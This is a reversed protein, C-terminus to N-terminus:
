FRASPRMGSSHRPAYGESIKFIQDVVPHSSPWRALLRNGVWISVLGCLLSPIPLLLACWSGNSFELYQTVVCLQSVFCSLRAFLRIDVGLCMAMGNPWQGKLIFLGHRLEKLRLFHFSQVHVHVHICM